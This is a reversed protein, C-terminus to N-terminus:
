YDKLGGPYAAGSSWGSVPIESEAIEAAASGRLPLNLNGLSIRELIRRQIKANEAVEEPLGRRYLRARALDAVATKLIAPVQTLPLAYKGGINAEAEAQADQLKATLFGRDLAGGPLSATASITEDLGFREIFEHITLWGADGGPMAWDRTIVMINLQQEAEIGGALAARLTLMFLEGDSGGSATVTVKGGTVMPHVSLDAGGTVYGQRATEASALSVVPAAFALEIALNSDPDKLHM